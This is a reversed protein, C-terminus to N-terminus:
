HYGVEQSWEVEVKNKTVSFYMSYLSVRTNLPAFYM